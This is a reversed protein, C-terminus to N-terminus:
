QPYQNTELDTDKVSDEDPDEHVTRDNPPQNTVGISASDDDSYTNQVQSHQFGTSVHLEASPAAPM